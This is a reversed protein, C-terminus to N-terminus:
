PECYSCFTYGEEKRNAQLWNLAETKTNFFYKTLEGETVYTMKKVSSCSTKHLKNLEETSWTPSDGPFKTGFDNYIYGEGKWIIKNWTDSDKVLLIRVFVM